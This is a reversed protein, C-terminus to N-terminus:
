QQYVIPNCGVSGTHAHTHTHTHPHTHASRHGIASAGAHYVTVEDTKAREKKMKDIVGDIEGVM